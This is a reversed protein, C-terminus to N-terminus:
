YEIIENLVGLSPVKSQNIGAPIAEPVSYVTLIEFQVFVTMILSTLSAANTLIEFQVFVTMILSTLSAANAITLPLPLLTVTTEGFPPSVKVVAVM